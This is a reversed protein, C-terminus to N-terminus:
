KKVDKIKNELHTALGYIAFHTMPRDRLIRHNLGSKSYGLMEAAKEQTIKLRELEAQISKYYITSSM